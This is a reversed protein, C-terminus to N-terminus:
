EGNVSAQAEKKKGLESTQNEEKPPFRGEKVAAAHERLQRAQGTATQKEFAQALREIAEVKTSKLAKAVIANREAWKEPPVDLYDARARLAKAQPGFGEKEFADALKRFMEPARPGRINALAEDYIKKREDTMVGRKSARKWALFIAGAFATEVLGFM